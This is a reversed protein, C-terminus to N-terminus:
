YRALSSSRAKAKRRYGLFGITSGAFGLLVLSSAEPVSTIAVVQGTLNLYFGIDDSLATTDAGAVLSVFTFDVPITMTAYSFFPMPGEAYAISGASIMSGSQGAIDDSIGGAGGLGGSIIGFGRYDASGSLLTVDINGVFSQTSYPGGSVGILGSSLGAALERIAMNAGGFFALDLKAGYDAPSSGTNGGPLPDWNGSTKAELEASLFQIDTLPSAVTQYAVSGSHYTFINGSYHTTLGGSAGSQGEVAALFTGGSSLAGSLTLMSSSSQVTWTAPGGLASSALFTSSLFLLSWAFRAAM